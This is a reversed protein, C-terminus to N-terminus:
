RARVRVEHGDLMFEAAVIGTSRLRNWARFFIMSRRSRVYLNEPSGEGPISVKEM